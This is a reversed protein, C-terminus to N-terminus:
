CSKLSREFDLKDQASKEAEAVERVRNLASKIAMIRIAGDINGNSTYNKDAIDLRALEEDIYQITKQM